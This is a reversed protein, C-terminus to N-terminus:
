PPSWPARARAHRGGLMRTAACRWSRTATSSRARARRVHGRPRRRRRPRHRPPGEGGGGPPVDGRPAPRRRRRQHEQRRARRPHRHGPRGAGRVGGAGVRYAAGHGCDVVIRLGDLTLERPFTRRASSSTAAARRRRHAAAYGITQRARRADASCRRGLAMLQRSRRGRRRRRLKFGDRRSCSSATTRTRTTRRASSSAPTPGCRRRHHVRHGPDAAPRDALRRRGDLRHRRRARERVHLGVAPHGQRHRHPRPAREQRLRAAVAMGLRTVTEGTMPEVNAVGRVGDTGFLKRHMASRRTGRPLRASGSRTDGPSAPAVSRRAHDRLRHGAADARGAGRRHADGTRHRPRAACKRVFAHWTSRSSRTSRRAGLRAPGRAGAPSCADLKAVQEADIGAGPRSRSRCRCSARARAGRRAVSRSRSSRTVTWTSRAPRRWGCRRASARATGDLDVEATRVSDLRPWWSAPAASACRTVAPGVHREVKYGRAPAGVTDVTSRSRSSRATRSSSQCAPAAHDVGARAGRAARDHRAPLLGRRKTM